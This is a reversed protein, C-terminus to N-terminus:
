INRTLSIGPFYNFIFFNNKRNRICIQLFWFYLSSFFTISKYENTFFILFHSVHRTIEKKVRKPGFITKYSLKM